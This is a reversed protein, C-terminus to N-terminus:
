QRFITGPLSKLNRSIFLQRVPHQAQWTNEESGSYHLGPGCAIKKLNMKINNTWKCLNQLRDRDKM